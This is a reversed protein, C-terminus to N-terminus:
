AAGTFVDFLADIDAESNYVHPAIRLFGGTVTEPARLPECDPTPQKITFGADRAAVAMESITDLPGRLTTITSREIEVGALEIGLREAHARVHAALGALRSQVGPADAMHCDLAACLGLRLAVNFGLKEFRTADDTDQPTAEDWSLRGDDAVRSPALRELVPRRVALMGTGKPGRLWKRCPAAAIDAGIEPLSVPIQGIAQSIDVVYTCQAPRPLAGIAEVPYREGTLSCVMPACIAALDDDILAGIAPVDLRGDSDTPMIQLHAGMRMMLAVNSSWEGPAVLVRRGSLPVSLVAANWALTGWDLFAVEDPTVGVLAALRPRLTALEGMAEAEAATVGIEEERQLHAIMRQRVASDPLGHGAANLYTM